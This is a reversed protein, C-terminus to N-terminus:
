FIEYCESSKVGAISLHYPTLIYILISLMASFYASLHYVYLTSTEVYNLSSVDSRWSTEVAMKNFKAYQQVM